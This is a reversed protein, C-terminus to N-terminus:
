NTRSIKFRSTKEEIKEDPVLEVQSAAICVSRKDEPFLAKCWGILNLYRKNGGALVEFVAEQEVRFGGQGEIMENSFFCKEDSGDSFRTVPLIVGKWLSRFDYPLFQPVPPVVNFRVYCTEPDSM